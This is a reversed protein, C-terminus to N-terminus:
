YCEVNSFNHSTNVANRVKLHGAGAASWLATAGEITYGDFKVTGTVELDLLKKDTSRGDPDARSGPGFKTILTSVAKDHGNRAAIVLPPCEQGENDSVPQSLLEEQLSLSVIVYNYHM